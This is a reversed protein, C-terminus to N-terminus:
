KDAAFEWARAKLRLIIWIGDVVRVKRIAGQPRPLLVKVAHRVAEGVVAALLGVQRQLTFALRHGDTHSSRKQESRKEEGSRQDRADGTM